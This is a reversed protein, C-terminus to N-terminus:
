LGRFLTIGFLAFAIGVLIIFATSRVTSLYEFKLRTWFAKLTFGANLTPQVPTIRKPVEAPAEDLRRGAKTIAPPQTLLLFEDWRGPGINRKLLWHLRVLRILWLRLGNM